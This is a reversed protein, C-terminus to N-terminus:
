IWRNLPSAFCCDRSPITILMVMVMTVSHVTSASPWPLPTLRNALLHRWPSHVRDDITSAHVDLSTWNYPYPPTRLHRRTTGPPTTHTACGLSTTSPARVPLSTRQRRRSADLHPTTTTSVQCAQRLTRWWSPVAYARPTRPHGLVNNRVTTLSM